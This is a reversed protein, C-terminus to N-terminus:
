AFPDYDSAGATAMEQGSHADSVAEFEDPTTGAPSGFPEDKYLWQVGDLYAGVGKKGKHDYAAFNVKVKAWDGSEFGGGIPVGRGDVVLLMKPDGNRDEANTKVNMFWYGPYKPEGEGNTEIDGDRLPKDYGKAGPFKAEAATKVCGVIGDIEAKPDALYQHKEKPILLTASYELPQGEKMENRRPKFVHAYSMRVPGVQCTQPKNEYLKM